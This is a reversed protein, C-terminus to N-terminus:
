GYRVMRKLQSKPPYFEQILYIDLNYFNYTKLEKLEHSILGSAKQYIM